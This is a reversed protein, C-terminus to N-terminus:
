QTNYNGLHIPGNSLLTFLVCVILHARQPVSFIPLLACLRDCATADSLDIDNSVIPVIILVIVIITPLLLLMWKSNNLWSFGKTM